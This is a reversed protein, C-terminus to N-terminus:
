DTKITGCKDVTDDFLKKADDYNMDKTFMIYGILKSTTHQLRWYFRSHFGKWLNIRIKEIQKKSYASLLEKGVAENILEAIPKMDETIKPMSMFVEIKDINETLQLLM